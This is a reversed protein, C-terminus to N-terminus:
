NSDSGTLQRLMPENITVGADAQLQALYQSFVEDAMSTRLETELTKAESSAPDLPQVAKGLVKFIIRGDPALASGAAGIGVNFVQVVVSAPLDPAGKRQADGVHKVELKGESAAIEELAKGDNIQKVLEAAKATLRKATEEDRWAAEVRPKVEDLGNARAPEVKAVEFWVTGHDKTSITDNDVGVDSAFAAKLVAERDALEAVPAGTKDRGAADIANIEQVNLGVAKAAEVLPKGASRADEIKERLGDAEKVAAVLAMERKLDAAVESFPTVLAPVIKSVHLLTFGFVNKVPESVGGEGLSFAVNAIDGVLAKKEVLGLDVDKDSLDRAKVIEDFSAGAKIKASAEVAEAETAFPLQQVSRKEPTTFRAAKVDDYRKMAAEDSIADPKALAAPHVALVILSRYEPARFNQARSAFYKKLEDDTPPAIDGAASLPLLFYDLSRRENRSRNLMELMTVPPNMAGAVAEVQEQRLTQKRQEDQYGRETLNGRRLLELFRLRDFQGASNKFDPSDVVIKNISEDSVALGLQKAHQDIVAEGILQNLLQRDLGAARAEDNTVNKKLRTSLSQLQTSWANRFSEASIETNGVSALRNSGFGRFFDGIGFISFSLVIFGMLLGSVIRGTWTESAARMNNLM